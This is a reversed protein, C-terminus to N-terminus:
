KNENGRLQNGDTGTTVVSNTIASITPCLPWIHRYNIYSQHVLPRPVQTVHPQQIPAHVIPVPQQRSALVPVPVQIPVPVVPSPPSTTSHNVPKDNVLDDESAVIQDLLSREPDRVIPQFVPSPPNVPFTNDVPTTTVTTPETTAVVSSPAMDQRINSCVSEVHCSPWLHSTMSM